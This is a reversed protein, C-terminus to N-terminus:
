YPHPVIEQQTYVMGDITLSGSVGDDAVHEATLLWGGGVSVASSGKYNYVYDWDLDLGADSPAAEAAVYDQVVIASVPMVLGLICFFAIKRM